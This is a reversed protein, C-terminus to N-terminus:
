KGFGKVASIASVGWPERLFHEEVPILSNRQTRMTKERERRNFVKVAQWFM